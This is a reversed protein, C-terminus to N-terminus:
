DWLPHMFAPLAHWLFKEPAVRPVNLLLALSKSEPNGRALVADPRPSSIFPYKPGYGGKVWNRRFVLGHFLVDINEQAVHVSWLETIRKAMERIEFTHFQFNVDLANGMMNIYWIRQIYPLLLKLPTWDAALVVVVDIVLPNGCNQYPGRRLIWKARDFATIEAAASRTVIATEFRFSSGHPMQDSIFLEPKRIHGFKFGTEKLDGVFCLKLDEYDSVGNEELITAIESVAIPKADSSIAELLESVPTSPVLQFSM